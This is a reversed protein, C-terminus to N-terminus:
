SALSVDIFFTPIHDANPINITPIKYMMVTAIPM